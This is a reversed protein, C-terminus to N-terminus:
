MGRWNQTIWKFWKAEKDKGPFTLILNYADQAIGDILVKFWHNHGPLAVSNGLSGHIVDFSAM